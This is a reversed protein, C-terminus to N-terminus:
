QENEEFDPVNVVVGPMNDEATAGAGSKEYGGAYLVAVVYGRSGNFLGAERNFCTRRTYRGPQVAKSSEGSTEDM